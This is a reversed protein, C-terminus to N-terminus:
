TYASPRETPWDALRAWSLVVSLESLAVRVGEITSVSQHPLISNSSIDDTGWEEVETCNCKVPAAARSKSEPPQIGAGTEEGVPSLQNCMHHMCCHLQAWVNRSPPPKGM